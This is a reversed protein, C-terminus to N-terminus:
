LRNGSKNFNEFMDKQEKLEAVGSWKADEQACLKLSELLQVDEGLGNVIEKQCGVNKESPRITNKTEIVQFRRSKKIDRQM